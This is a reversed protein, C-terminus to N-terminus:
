QEDDCWDLPGNPVYEVVPDPGFTVMRNPDEGVAQPWAKSYAAWSEAERAKAVERAIIERGRRISDNWQEQTEISM